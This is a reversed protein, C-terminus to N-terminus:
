SVLSIVSFDRAASRITKVKENELGSLSQLEVLSSKRLMTISPIGIAFLKKLDQEAFRGPKRIARFFGLLNVVATSHGRMELKFLKEVPAFTEILKQQYEASIKRSSTKVVDKLVRQFEILAHTHKDLGVKRTKGVMPGIVYHVLECLDRSAVGMQIAKLYRLVPRLHGQTIQVYTQQMQAVDSQAQKRKKREPARAAARVPKQLDGFAKDFDSFFDDNLLTEGFLAPMAKGTPMSKLNARM